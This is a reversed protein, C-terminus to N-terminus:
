NDLRASIKFQLFTVVAMVAFLAYAIASSYGLNYYKFGQTYMYLVISMTSDLPGGGTMIYPEAFVHLSSIATTVTVFFTTKKLMPITVYVFQQFKGAGDIASAEYIEDPITQLAAIFVIMNYGFGKWVGMLVIAPLALYESALWSERPFGLHAFLRNLVGLDGNFLWQWVVSAAAFTTIVPLFFGLRFLPKFRIFSQNLALASLLSISVNLPVAMFAYFLTNKLARYFVPDAALKRYNALGTFVTNEWDRFGYVNWNTLSIIFASLIPIFLFVVIVSIAPALFLFAAYKYKMRSIRDSGGGRFRFYAALSLALALCISVAATIKFLPTQRASRKELIEDTRKEIRALAQEPTLRGTLYEEIVGYLLDSLQTWEPICPPSKTERLQKAFAALPQSSVMEEADWARRNSPLCNSLRYMALQAKEGSMFSLFKFAADKNMSDKFIALNSGGIFTHRSKKRPAPAAAWKGKLGPKINEIDLMTWPGSFFIPYYGSEFAEFIDTDDSVPSFGEDFPRKFHKLAEVAEPTNVASKLGKEDLFEVGNQWLLSLFPFPERGPSCAAYGKEGRAKKIDRIKALMAHYEDWTDPFEDFGYSALLDKRYYFLRVDVYWPVGYHKGGYECSMLAGEFFRGFDLGSGPRAAYPDLPELADMAVFEPMWTTGIQCIDPPVRGMISTIIKEHGVDWPISQIKVRFGPNAKEFEVAMTGLMGGDWGMAWATIEVTDRSPNLPPSAEAARSPVPASEPAASAFAAPMLLFLAVAAGALIFAFIINAAAGAPLASGFNRSSKIM